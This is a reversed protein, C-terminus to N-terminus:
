GVFQGGDVHIAQGNMFSAGESCLFLAVQAVEDVNGLRHLTNAHPNLEYGFPVDVNGHCLAHVRVGHGGLEHALQRTLAVVGGKSALYSVGDSAVGFGALHSALNIIVGGGQEVMVRGLLQSMFFTGTLNVEIVRRWDWEDLKLADGRKLVAAANVLIDVKGLQDRAEEILASAQYRNSIDMQYGFARGGAACIEQAVEDCTDPNIDNVCVHIGVRGLALAIARGIGEGGGTVLATQHRLAFQVQTM